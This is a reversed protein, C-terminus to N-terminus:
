VAARLRLHTPHLEDKAKLYAVHAAEATPHYGLHRRKNNAVIAACYKGHGKHFYVGLLGCANDSRCNGLNHTNSQCDVSRLNEWRNDLRMGNKHDVVGDQWDGTMYLVALRHASYQKNDIKIKYYGGDSIWGAVSGVPSRNSTSKL